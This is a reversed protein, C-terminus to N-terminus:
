YDVAINKPSIIFLKSIWDLLQGINEFSGNKYIITLYRTKCKM